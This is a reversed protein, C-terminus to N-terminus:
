IVIIRLDTKPWNRNRTRVAQWTASAKVLHRSHINTFFKYLLLKRDTRIPETFDESKASRMSKVSGDLDGHSGGSFGSMAM